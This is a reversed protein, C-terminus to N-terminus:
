QTDFFADIHDIHHHHNQNSLKRRREKRNSSLAKVYNDSSSTLPSDQGARGQVVVTTTWKGLLHCFWTKEEWKNKQVHIINMDCNLCM